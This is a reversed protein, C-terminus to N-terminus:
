AQRGPALEDTSLERRRLQWALGMAKEKTPTLELALSPALTDAAANTIAVAMTGVAIKAAV